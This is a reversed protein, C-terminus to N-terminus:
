RLNRCKAIMLTIDDHQENAGFRRVEHLTANVMEGPCLHGHRRLSELLRDEGFEDGAENFSETVGDTYLTLIDGNRVECEAIACDWEKFLGLVTSTSALYEVSNDAHLLLGSLHGCNVYRLRRLNGDYEAFFLTAYASPATNELFLRNVSRLLAEPEDLRVACQSRLHAQLTAMLLAAAIGKGAVDGIILGLREPGLSLFDYYDGGVHRAPMCVGAYDLSSCAPSHQPFLRSQVQRAIELEYAIKRDAELKEAHARRQAEIAATVADFSVLAFSNRDIDEFRTFIEGWVPMQTSQSGPQGSRDIRYNVRRLRPPHRFRVGRNSWERFKGAVDETVFVVRTARGILKSEASEPKPQILTLVATGNPPSVGLWREGSQLRADFVLEFGLKEVYFRLSREQDRVFIHVSQLRLDPHQQALSMGNGDFSSVPHNYIRFSRLLNEGSRM